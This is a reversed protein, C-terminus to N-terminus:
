AFFETYLVSSQPVAPTTPYRGNGRGEREGEGLSDGVEEGTVVSSVKVVSCLVNLVTFETM